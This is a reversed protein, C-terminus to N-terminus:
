KAGYSGDANFRNIPRIADSFIFYVSISRAFSNISRCVTTLREIRAVDRLIGQLRQFCKM